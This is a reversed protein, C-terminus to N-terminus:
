RGLLHLLRVQLLREREQWPPAHRFNQEDEEEEEELVHYLLTTGLLHRCQIDTAVLVKNQPMPFSNHMHRYWPKLPCMRLPVEPSLGLFRRVQELLRRYTLGGAHHENPRPRLTLPYDLVVPMPTLTGGVLSQLMVYGNRDGKRKRWGAIKAVEILNSNRQQTPLEANARRYGTDYWDKLAKKAADKASTYINCWGKLAIIAADRASTRWMLIEADKRLLSRNELKWKCNPKAM